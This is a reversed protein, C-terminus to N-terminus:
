QEGNLPRADRGAHLDARVSSTPLCQETEQVQIVERRIHPALLSLDAKSLREKARKAQHRYPYLLVPQSVADLRSREEVTLPINAAALNDTLQEETRAGIILSSIGPRGLLYALAIQAASAKRGDAIEVLVEIIDFLKNEDYIPSEGWNNFHRTGEPAQRNRRYKGSLLGGAFPEM